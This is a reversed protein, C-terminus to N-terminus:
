GLFTSGDLFRYANSIVSLAVSNSVSTEFEVDTLDPRVRDLPIFAEAVIAGSDDRKVTGTLNVLPNLREYNVSGKSRSVYSEVSELTADSSDPLNPVPVYFVFGLRDNIIASDFYYNETKLDPSGVVFSEVSARINDLTEKLIM